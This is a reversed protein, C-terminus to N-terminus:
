FMMQPVSSPPRDSKRGQSGREVASTWFRSRKVCVAAKGQHDVREGYLKGLYEFEV